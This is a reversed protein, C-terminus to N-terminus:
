RRNPVKISDQAKQKSRTDDFRRVFTGAAPKLNRWNITAAWAVGALALGLWALRSARRETAAAERAAHMANSAFYYANDGLILQMAARRYRRRAEIHDLNNGNFSNVRALAGISAGLEARRHRFGVGRAGELMDISLDGDYTDDLRQGPQQARLDNLLRDRYIRAAHMDNAPSRGADDLLDLANNLQFLADSHRGQTSLVVAQQHSTEIEPHYHIKMPLINACHM